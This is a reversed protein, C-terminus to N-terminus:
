DLSFIRFEKLVKEVVVVKNKVILLNFLIVEVYQIVLGYSGVLEELIVADGFVQVIMVVNYLNNLNKFVAIGM